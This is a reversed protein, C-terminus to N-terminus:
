EIDVGSMIIFQETLSLDKLKTGTTPMDKRINYEAQEQLYANQAYTAELEAQARGVSKNRATELWARLSGLEEPRIGAVLGLTTANQADVGFQHQVQRVTFMMNKSEVFTQDMIEIGPMLLTVCNATYKLRNAEAFKYMAYRTCQQRNHLFKNDLKELRIGFKNCIERPSAGRNWAFVTANADEVTCKGTEMADPAFPTNTVEWDWNIDGIVYVHTRMGSDSETLTCSITLEKPIYFKPSSFYRPHKCIFRGFGDAWFKYGGYSTAEQLMHIIPEEDYFPLKMNISFQRAEAKSIWEQAFMYPSFEIDGEFSMQGSTQAQHLLPAPDEFDGTMGYPSFRFSLRPAQGKEDLGSTGIKGIEQGPTVTDGVKVFVDEKDEGLHSYFFYCRMSTTVSDGSPEEIGNEDRWKKTVEEVYAKDTEYQEKLNDQNDWYYQRANNEISTQQETQSVQDSAEIIVRRGIGADLKSLDASVVKGYCCAVAVWGDGYCDNKDIYGEKTDLVGKDGFSRLHTLQDVTLEDNLSEKLQQAANAERRKMDDDETETFQALSESVSNTIDVTEHGVVQKVANTWSVGMAMANDIRQNISAREEPSMTLKRGPRTPIFIMEDPKNEIMLHQFTNTAGVKQIPYVMDPRIFKSKELNEKIEKMKKFADGLEGGLANEDLWEALTDMTMAGDLLNKSLKEMLLMSNQKARKTADGMPDDFIYDWADKLGGVAKKTILWPLGINPVPSSRGHLRQKIIEPHDFLNESPLFDNNLKFAKEAAEQSAGEVVYMAVEYAALNRAMERTIDDVVADPNEAVRRMAQGVILGDQAVTEPNFFYNATAKAIFSAGYKGDIDEPTAMAEDWRGPFGEMEEMLEVQVDQPLFGAKKAYFEIYESVPKFQVVTELLETDGRSLTYIQFRKLTDYCMFQLSGGQLNPDNDVMDQIYGTFVQVFGGVPGKLFVAVMDMSEFANSFVYGTNNLTFSLGATGDESKNLNGMGVLANTVRWLDGAKEVYKPDTSYKPGPSMGITKVFIEYQPRYAFNPGELSYGSGHSFSGGMQDGVTKVAKVVPAGSPGIPNGRQKSEQFVM